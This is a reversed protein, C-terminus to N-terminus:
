ATVSATAIRTQQPLSPLISMAWRKARSICPMPSGFATGVFIARYGDRFLDDISIATGITTNPRVQIGKLILHHYEFDDLVSKPLRFDPIGYRLVGAM